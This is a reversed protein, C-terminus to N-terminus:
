HRNGSVNCARIGSIALHVRYLIICYLKDTVQLLYTTKELKRYILLVSRLKIVSINNFTANLAMIRIGRGHDKLYITTNSTVYGKKNITFVSPSVLLNELCFM